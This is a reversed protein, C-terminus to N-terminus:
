NYSLASFLLKLKEIRLEQTFSVGLFNKHWKSRNPIKRQELILVWFKSPMKKAYIVKMQSIRIKILGGRGLKQFAIGM